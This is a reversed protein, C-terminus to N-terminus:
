DDPYFRLVGIVGAPRQSGPMLDPDRLQRVIASPSRALSGPSRVKAILECSRSSTTVTESSAMMSAMRNQKARRLTTTSGLPATASAAKSDPTAPAIPRVPTTSDPPLM